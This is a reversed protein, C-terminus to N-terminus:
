QVFKCSMDKDSTSKAAMWGEFVNLFLFESKLRSLNVLGWGAAGFYKWIDKQDYIWSLDGVTQHKWVFIKLNVPAATVAETLECIVVKSGFLWFLPKSAWRGRWQRLRASVSTTVQSSKRRFTTTAGAVPVHSPRRRTTGESRVHSWSSAFIWYNIWDILRRWEAQFNLRCRQNSMFADKDVLM